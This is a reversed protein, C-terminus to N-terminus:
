LNSLNTIESQMKESTNYVMFGLEHKQSLLDLLLLDSEEQKQEEQPKHGVVNNFFLDSIYRYLISGAIDQYTKLLDEVGQSYEDFIAFPSSENKSKHQEYRTFIRGLNGLQEDIQDLESYLASDIRSAVIDAKLFSAVSQQKIIETQLCRFKVICRDKETELHVYDSQAEVKALHDKCVMSKDQKHLYQPINTCDEESCELTELIFNMAKMMEMHRVENFTINFKKVGLREHMSIPDLKLQIHSFFDHLHHKEIFEPDVKSEIAFGLSGIKSEEAARM